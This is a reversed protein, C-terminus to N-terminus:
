LIEKLKRKHKKLYKNRKADKGRVPFATLLYYGEEKRLPELVVVYDEVQDYIYTRFGEPEKVSFLLMNDKKKQEIHFKVWHLRQSRHIEFERRRSKQDVIHTTLHRFLTEMEIAGDIPTPTIKKGQFCFNPHEVIDKNFVGKLSIIRERHPLGTIDLHQNYAKITNLPM